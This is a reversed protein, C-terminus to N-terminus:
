PSKCVLVRNTEDIDYATVTEGWSEHIQRVRAAQGEGTTDQCIFNMLVSGGPQLCNRVAQQFAPQCFLDPVRNDVFLDIIIVAYSLGPRTVYEAADAEVLEVNDMQGIGYRALRLMLPDADVATISLDLKLERRIIVPVSGAGAGLLLVPGRAYSVFDSLRFVKRFVRHLSGFSYNAQATDVMMRGNILWVEVPGSLESHGEWLKVPWLYSMLRKGATIKFM